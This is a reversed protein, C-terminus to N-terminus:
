KKTPNEEEEFTPQLEERAEDIVGLSFIDEIAQNYGEIRCQHNIREQPPMDGFRLHHPHSNRVADMMQLFVPNSLIARASSVLDPTTRWDVIDIRLVDRPIIRM